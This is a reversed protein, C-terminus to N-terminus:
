AAAASLLAAMCEALMERVESDSVSRSAQMGRGLYKYWSVQLDRWRFNWPQDDDGWAYAHASFVECDFREGTNGFPNARDAMVADWANCLADLAATLKEDVGVHHEM